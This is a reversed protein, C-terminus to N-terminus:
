APDAAATGACFRCGSGLWSVWGRGSEWRGWEWLGWEVAVLQRLGAIGGGALDLVVLLTALGAETLADAQIVVVPQVKGLEAGQHPNLRAVWVEGRRM